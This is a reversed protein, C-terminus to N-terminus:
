FKDLRLGQKVPGHERVEHSDNVRIKNGQRLGQKVPGHERVYELM